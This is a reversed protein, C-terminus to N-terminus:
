DGARTFTGAASDHRAFAIDHHINCEVVACVRRSLKLPQGVHQEIEEADAAPLTARLRGKAAAARRAPRQRCRCRHSSTTALYSNQRLQTPASLRQRTNFLDESASCNCKGCAEM